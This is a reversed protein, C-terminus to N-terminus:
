LAALETRPPAGGPTPLPTPTPSPAPPGSSLAPLTASPSTTTFGGRIASAIFAATAVMAILVFAAWGLAGRAGPRRNDQRVQEM